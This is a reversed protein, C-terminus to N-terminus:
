PHLTWDPKTCEPGALECGWAKQAVEEYRRLKAEYRAEAASCEAEDTKPHERRCAELEERAAQAERQEDQLWMACSNASVLALVGAIRALRGRVPRAPALRRLHQRQSRAHHQASGAPRLIALRSLMKVDCALHHVLLALTDKECLVITEEVGDFGADRGRWLSGVLDEARENQAIDHVLM